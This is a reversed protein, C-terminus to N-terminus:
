SLLTVEHEVFYLNRNYYACGPELARYHCDVCMAIEETTTRSRVTHASGLELAVAEVQVVMLLQKRRQSKITFRPRFILTMTQVEPHIRGLHQLLHPLLQFTCILFLSRKVTYLHLFKRASERTFTMLTQWGDTSLLPDINKADELLNPLSVTRM